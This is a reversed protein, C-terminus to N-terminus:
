SFAFGSGDGRRSSFEFHVRGGCLLCSILGPRKRKEIQAERKGKEREREGGREGRREGEADAAVPPPQHHTKKKKRLRIPFNCRLMVNNNGRRVKRGGRKQEM